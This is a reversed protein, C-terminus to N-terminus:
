AVERVPELAGGVQLPEREPCDDGARILEFSEGIDRLRGHVRALENGASLLTQQSKVLRMLADQGLTAAVATDQRAQVMTSFLNSQRLLAENIAAEADFLERTIRLQAVTKNMPM